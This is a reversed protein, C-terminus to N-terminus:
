SVDVPGYSDRERRYEVEGSDTATLAAWTEPQETETPTLWSRDDAVVRLADELALYEDGDSRFDYLRIHGEHLLDELAPRLDELTMPPDIPRIEKGVVVSLGWLLEWLPPDADIAALIAYRANM